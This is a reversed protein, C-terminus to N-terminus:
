LHVVFTTTGKTKHKLTLSVYLSELMDEDKTVTMGNVFRITKKYGKDREADDGTIGVYSYKKGKVLKWGPQLTVEITMDGYEPNLHPYCMPEGKQLKINRGNITLKKVPDQYKKM